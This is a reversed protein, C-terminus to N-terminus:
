GYPFPEVCKVVCIMPDFLVHVERSFKPRVAHDLTADILPVLEDFTFFAFSTATVWGQSPKYVGLPVRAARLKVM